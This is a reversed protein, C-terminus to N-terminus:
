MKKVYNIWAKNNIVTSRNVTIKYNDEIENNILEFVHKAIYQNITIRKIMPLEITIVKEKEAKQSEFIIRYESENRYPFRKSFPIDGVDTLERKLDMIKIYKVKGHRLSKDGSISGLLTVADFEICCANLKETFAGWHHITESEYTFCLAFLSKISAKAKYVDLLSVDNKDEWYQPDSMRVKEESLIKFMNDISTFRNLVKIPSSQIFNGTYVGRLSAISDM